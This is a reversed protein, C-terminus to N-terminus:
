VGQVEEIYEQMFRGNAELIVVLAAFDSVIFDFNAALGTIAYTDNGTVLVETGPDGLVGDVVPQAYVQCEGTPRLYATFVLNNDGTFNEATCNTVDDAGILIPGDDEMSNTYRIARAYDSSKIQGNETYKTKMTLICRVLGSSSEGFEPICIIKSPDNLSINDVRTGTDEGPFAIFVGQEEDTPDFGINKGEIQFGVGTRFVNQIDLMTDLTAVTLPQKDEYGIREYEAQDRITDKFPKAPKAKIDLPDTPLDDTAKEMRVPLTSVFSVFNELKVTNGALIQTVVEDQLAILVSAATAVPITPNHLNILEAVQENGLVMGPQVRASFSPPQTLYNSTVIYPISM